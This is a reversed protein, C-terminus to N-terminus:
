VEVVTWGEPIGSAGSPISLGSKKYFTGTASVGNVWDEFNSTNWGVIPNPATITELSTCGKFCKKFSTAGISTINIFNPPTVLSTCNYFCTNFTDYGAQKLNEFTPPTILSTCSQFCEMFQKNKTLNRVNKFTPATVLSTCGAFCRNFGYDAVSTVNDFTPATVLSTCGEFCRSFGYDVVNTINSTILNEASLLSQNDRFLSYFSYAPIKSILNFNDLALLSTIYGGINCKCGTYSTSSSYLKFMYYASSDQNFGNANNGKLYIKSGTPVEIRPLNVIDYEFWEGNDIRYNLNPTYTPTGVKYLTFYGPVSDINEVYLPDTIEVVTWGEPIGSTGTPIDLGYKKIFTGTVPVGSVWDSFSSVDWTSPNPAIITQLSTCEEFCSNFGDQEVSTVNSFTPATVLSTCWKFCSIFGGRGVSTVNSFTPATVLSSCGQFCTTFSDQEVSTINDTILNEASLLNKQDGFLQFFSFAPINSILDFNELALLSTIYGGINFKVNYTTSNSYLTLTHYDTFTQNFGNPNNGRLYIKSGVPVEITPLNAMDYEFWKGNDIRYNLNPTYTPSGMRSVGFYGPESDINEIYLPDTIEVVEWGEPIGSAGSPIEVGAKKYFTGTEAVGELWGACASENYEDFLATVNNVSSNTFMHDYCMYALVRAHLVPAQQLAHCNYFTQLYCCEYLETAPLAPAKILAICDQFMSELANSGLITIELDPMQVMRECRHFMGHCAWDQAETAYIKAGETIGSGAFMFAYAQQPITLAPLATAQQLNVCDYFLNEYCCVNLHTSPLQPPLELNSCGFFMGGYCYVTLYELSLILNSANILNGEYFFLRAFTHSIDKAEESLEFTEFGDTTLLSTIYGGVNYSQSFTLQFNDDNGNGGNFGSPNNGRLYIKSGKPVTVGVSGGEVINYTIWNSNDIKVELNPTYVPNGNRKVSFTGAEEGVNEIYLEAGETTPEDPKPQVGQALKYYKYELEKFKVVWNYRREM